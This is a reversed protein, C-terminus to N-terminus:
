KASMLEAEQPLPADHLPLLLTITTGRGVESDVEIRGGLEKVYQHSEYAGIGMGAAKTTSFPKFLRTHIFEPSMGHGTDSVEVRAMGAQRELRLSVRGDAPTAELANQVVHGLVRALREQQGRVSLPAACAMDVVRGRAAAMARVQEAVEVLDIGCVVGLPKDGERLQQMLTQMKEVSSEVTLLMDQQFEPNDRLRKANQMMLSLQTIINKLDHVVFASMRHFADFKQAELLAETARSQALFSAAQRSATKLLDRVEWTVGGAHAPRKLILWGPLDLDKYHGPRARYEDLDVIWGTRALFRSLSSQAPEVATMPPVNWRAILTFDGSGPASAWLAGGPCQLMEALGQVVRVGMDGTGPEGSLRGTFRLWEARYDYRYAFFNKAIFVRLRARVSGSLLLVALLLLAVFVTTLQLARGWDGSFYQVYYGVAAVFLLYGGVFMLTATHFVVARSMQASARWDAHRRTAIFLLPM